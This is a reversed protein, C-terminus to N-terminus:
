AEEEVLQKLRLVSQPVDEFIKQLFILKDDTIEETALSVSHEISLQGKGLDNIDHEFVIQGLPTEAVNSFSQYTQVNILQFTLPHQGFFGMQGFTGTEFPGELSIKELKEDWDYWRGLQCYYDWVVERKSVLQTKFSLSIM